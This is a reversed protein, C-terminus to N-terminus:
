HFLRIGLKLDIMTINQSWYFASSISYNEKWWYTLYTEAYFVNKIQGSPFTGRQYNAYPDFIRNIITEGGTQLFGTSVSIILNNTTSYNIGICIEQGDSGGYWGLPKGDQVFNNMGLAHRFTPTGVYIFSSYLTFLNNKSFLPTYALRISYAKGHEKELEIQQDIVFEDYLYNISLRFNKKLLYDLHMQWVANSNGNGIINLRNNLEIEIHSSIPNFYGIDMPRNEGSYIVTESFGIILTKKNTWEFGRATIYRNINTDVNELLGHIYRVRVKGYDSGLLFYDYTESNEGLALQIDNGSGWSERGKGIQLVVWNNEFGIGSQNEHNNIFTTKIGRSYSNKKNTLSPSAYAYFRNKYRLQGFGSLRYFDKGTSFGLFGDVHNPSQLKKKYGSNFRVPGFFTLSEWDKGADFLLKKSQYLFQSKPIPQSFVLCLQFFIFPIFLLLNM